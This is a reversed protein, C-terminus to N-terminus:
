EEIVSQLELIYVTQKTKSKYTCTILTLVNKDKNRKIEVTGDKEVYYIDVCKYNYVKGRYTISADFGLNLNHLKDFVASSIGSHGALILNGNKVNPMSSGNILQINYDVYNYPNDLATFGRDLSIEPIKLYGIYDYRGNGVEEEVETELSLKQGADEDFEIVEEVISTNKEYFLNEKITDFYTYCLLCLGMFAFLISLTISANKSLKRLM